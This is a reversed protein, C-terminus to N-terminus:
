LCIPLRGHSAFSRSKTDEGEEGHSEAKACIEGKGGHLAIIAQEAAGFDLGVAGGQLGLKLPQARLDGPHFVQGLAQRVIKQIEVQQIFLGAIHQAQQAAIFDHDASACGSQRLGVKEYVRMAGRRQFRRRL